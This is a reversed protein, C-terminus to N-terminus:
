WSKGWNIGLRYDDDEFDYEGGINLNGGWLDRNYDYGLKKDLPYLKPLFPDVQNYIGQIRNVTPNNALALMIGSQNNIPARAELWGPSFDHLSHRRDQPNPENWVPYPGRGGVGEWRRQKDRHATRASNLIADISRPQLKQRERPPM